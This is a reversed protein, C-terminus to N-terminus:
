FYLYKHTRAHFIERVVRHTPLNENIYRNYCIMHQTACLSFVRGLKGSCCDCVDRAVLKCIIETDRAPLSFTYRCM